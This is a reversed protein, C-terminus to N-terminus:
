PEDDLSPWTSIDDDEIRDPTSESRANPWGAPEVDHVPDVLLMDQMDSYKTLVPEAFRGTPITVTLPSIPNDPPTNTPRILGEELMRAVFHRVSNEIARADADSEAVLRLIAEDICVPICLLDWILAATSDLTYYNGADLNLFITEDDFREFMATPENCEVYARGPEVSTARSM